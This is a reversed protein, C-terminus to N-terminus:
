ARLARWTFEFFYNILEEESVGFGKYIMVGKLKALLLIGTTEAWLTLATKMPDLDSKLSGDSIGENIINIFLEMSKEKVSIVKGEARDLKEMVIKQTQNQLFANYYNPYKRNFEIFAKGIAKTKCLGNGEIEVAKQFLNYLINNGRYIIELFLEDKSEFYLYLTGKSLEAQEAVDDMTSKEFGKSFFVEEAADIIDLRRREKEREKREAVGM